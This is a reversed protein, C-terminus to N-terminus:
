QSKKKLPLMDSLLKDLPLSFRIFHDKIAQIMAYPGSAYVYYTQNLHSPHQLKKSQEEFFVEHVWGIKGSWLNDIKSLVPVYTFNPYKKQWENM